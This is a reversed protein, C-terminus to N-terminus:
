TGKGHLYYYYYYYSTTTTTTCVLSYPVEFRQNKEDQLGTKLGPVAQFRDPTDTLDIKCKYIGWVAERRGMEHGIHPWVM